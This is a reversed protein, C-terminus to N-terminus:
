SGAVVTVGILGAGSHVSLGPTLEAMIVEDPCTVSARLQEEFLRAETEANVHLLAMREAQRGALAETTM